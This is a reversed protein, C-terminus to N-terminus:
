LQPQLWEKKLFDEEKGEGWKEEEATMERGRQRACEKKM